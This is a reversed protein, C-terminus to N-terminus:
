CGCIRELIVQKERRFVNIGGKVKVVTGVDIGSLDVTRGTATLGTQKTETASASADAAGKGNTPPAAVEVASASPAERGCTLEINVGSSDDLLM